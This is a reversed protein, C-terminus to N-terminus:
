WVQVVMVEDISEMHRSDSEHVEHRKKQIGRKKEHRRKRGKWEAGKKGKGEM